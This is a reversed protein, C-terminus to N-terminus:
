KTPAGFAALVIAIVAITAIGAALLRPMPSPPLPQDLRM